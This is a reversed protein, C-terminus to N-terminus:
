YTNFAFNTSKKNFGFNTKTIILNHNTNYPTKIGQIKCTKNKITKNTTITQQNNKTQKRTKKNEQKRTKKNVKNKIDSPPSQANTVSNTKKIILNDDTFCNFAFNSNIHTSHLTPAKKILDM